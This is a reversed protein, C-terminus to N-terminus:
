QACRSPPLLIVRGRQSKGHAPCRAPCPMPVGRSIQRVRRENNPPTARKARARGASGTNRKKKAMTLELTRPERVLRDRGSIFAAALVPIWFFSRLVLTRPGQNEYVEKPIDEGTLM